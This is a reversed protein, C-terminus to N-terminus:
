VGKMYGYGVAKKSGFATNKIFCDFINKLEKKFFATNENIYKGISSEEYSIIIEFQANKVVYFFLPRVNLDDKPYSKEYKEKKDNYEYYNSYHSAMVDNEIKYNKKMPYSDYFCLHGKKDQNGFLSDIVEINKMEIMGLLVNIPKDYYFDYENELFARFAGKISSSPIYPVGYVHDLKISIEKVSQEGIGIVLKDKTKAKYNIYRNKLSEKLYKNKKNLHKVVDESITIENLLKREASYSGKNYNWRIDRLIKINNNSTVNSYFKCWREDIKLKSEYRRDCKNTRSTKIVFFKYLKMLEYLEETIELYYKTNLERIIYIDMLINGELSLNLLKKKIFEMYFDDLVCYVDETKMKSYAFMVTNAIGNTKILSTYENKIDINNRSIYEFKEKRSTFM